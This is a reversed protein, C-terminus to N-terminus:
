QIVIFNKALDDYAWLKNATHDIALGYTSTASSYGTLVDSYPTAGAPDCVFYVEGTGAKFYLYDAKGDNNTDDAVVDNHLTSLDWADTLLTVVGTTRNVRILRDLDACAMYYYTNDMALGSCYREDKVKTAVSATTPLTSPAADMSWIETDTGVTYENTALYIKGGYSVSSELYDSPSGLFDGFDTPNWTSGGDNTIRFIQGSSGSSKSEVTYVNLGDVLMTYGLQSSTLGADVYLDQPTGGAKPVRFLNIYGGIYVYGGAQEDVAMYYETFSTTIGTPITTVNSGIMGNQGPSCPPVVVDFAWTPQAVTNKCTADVIGSFSVTVHEGSQFASAAITLTKNGNSFSVNSPSTSLDISKSTGKNGTVQITGVTTDIAADFDVVLKPALTTTTSGNAPSVPTAAGAFTACNLETLTVNLPNSLTATGSTTDAVYFYVPKGNSVPVTGSMTDLTYESVCTLEPVLTGCAGDTVVAVWRNNVPKDFSFDVSGDFTPVYVLVVDPGDVASSTCQPTVTLHDNKTATWSISKTGATIPIATGCDEGTAPATQCSATTGNHICTQGFPCVSEEQWQQCTNPLLTCVQVQNFICKKAGVTPCVDFCNPVCAATSGTVQCIKAQSPCNEGTVWDLCGNSQKSCTTVAGAVCSQAGETTCQDTCTKASCIAATGQAVCVQGSQTCDQTTTWGLCGNSGKACTQIVNGSCQYDGAKPCQDTCTTGAKCVASGNDIECAENNLSCDTGTTWDLCSDSGMTCTEIADGNCQSDGIKPCQDTCSKVCQAKGGDESCTQNLSACNTLSVWLHCGSSALNCKQTVDGKCREEGDACEDNCCTDTSLTCDPNCSVGGGVFGQEACSHNYLNSGDCAEGAEVIANGCTGCQGPLCSACDNPCSQATEGADCKGDGCGAVPGGPPTTTDDAAACGVVLALVIWLAAFLTAKKM